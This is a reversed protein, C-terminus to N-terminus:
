RSPVRVPPSPSPESPPRPAAIDAGRRSEPGKLSRGRKLAGYASVTALPSAPSGGVYQEVLAAAEAAFRLVGPM